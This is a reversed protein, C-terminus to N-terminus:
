LRASRVGSVAALWGAALGGPVCGVGGSGTGEVPMPQRRGRVQADRFCKVWHELELEDGRAPNKFKRWQLAAARPAPAAAAPNPMSGPPARLTGRAPGQVQAAAYSIVM